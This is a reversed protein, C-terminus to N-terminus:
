SFTYAVWGYLQVGASRNHYYGPHNYDDNGLQTIKTLEGESLIEKTLSNSLPTGTNYIPILYRKNTKQTAVDLFRSTMEKYLDYKSNHQAQYFLGSYDPNREPFMDGPIATLSVGVHASPLSAQITSVIEMIDNTIQVYDTYFLRDNEGLCIVVHTPECIDFATASTVKTGATSGVVLRTVGDNALTKFQALYKTMSFRNAGTGNTISTIWDQVSQNQAASNTWAGLNAIQSEKLLLDYGNETIIPANVGYNTTAITKNDASTGAYARGILANLGLLDWAGASNFVWMRFPHRLYDMASMGGRGQAYGVLPVTTNKYTISSNIANANGINLYDYGVNSNDIRNKLAMEKPMNWISGVTSTDGNKFRNTALSDGIYMVKPFQSALLTSKVSVVPVTILKTKLLEGSLTIQVNNVDADAVNIYKNLSTKNKGNIFLSIRERILRQLFLEVNENRSFNGNITNQVTFINKPLLVEYDAEVITSTASASSLKKGNLETVITTLLYAEYTTSTASQEVQVLDANNASSHIQFSINTTLAPTTFATGNAITGIFSILNGNALEFRLGRLSACGSIVYMTNESVPVAIASGAGTASYKVGDTGIGTGILYNGTPTVIKNFKNKGVKDLLTPIVVKSNLNDLENIVSFPTETISYFHLANYTTETPPLTPVTTYVTTTVGSIWNRYCFNNDNWEGSALLANEAGYIPFVRDASQMSVFLQDNAEITLNSDFDLKYEYNSFSGIIGNTNFKALDSVPITKVMVITNVTGRKHVVQVKISQTFAGNTSLKYIFVGVRRITKTSKAIYWSRIDAQESNTFAIYNYTSSPTIQPTYSKRVTITDISNKNNQGLLKIPDTIANSETKSFIEVDSYRVEGGLLSKLVPNYASYTTAVTGKELQVTAFSGSASSTTQFSINTTLAPTTFATGNAITGIFSIVTGDLRHFLLGRLQQCGSIVYSTSAIAPIKFVRGFGAADFLVGDNGIGKNIQLYSQTLDIENKSFINADVKQLYSTLDLATQSISFAGAASRSIVAFSNAAVVVGGYNTYTGAQTATFSAIGTGSPAPSTPVISIGSAGTVAAIIANELDKATGTYSGKDLKSAILTVNAIIANELDKATGTYSGKDLKSTIASVNGSIDTELSLLNNDMEEITLKSGKGLRTVIAM